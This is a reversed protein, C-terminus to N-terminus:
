PKLYGYETTARETLAQGYGSRIEILGRSLLRPKVTQRYEEPDLRMVACIDSESAGYCIFQGRRERPRQFLTKMVGRDEWRLGLKDIAYTQFVDEVDAKTIRTRGAARAFIEAERRLIIAEWPAGSFRTRDALLEAADIDCPFTRKVVLRLIDEYSMPRLMMTEGFRRKLAAHMSGYDTTAGIVMVPPLKVPHFGGEFPYVGDEMLSYIKTQLQQDLVHIEDIFWVGGTKAIERVFGDLLEPKNL